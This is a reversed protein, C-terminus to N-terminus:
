FNIKTRVGYVRPEAISASYYRYGNAALTPVSSGATFVAEKTINRIWLGMSWKGNPSTYPIEANFTVYGPARGNPLYTFDLWRSSAFIATLSPTINGGGALHFVHRYDATGAWKPSRPLQLGTCNLDFFGGALPATSCRSGSTPGYAGTGLQQLRFSDLVGDTYEVGFHLTDESTANWLVDLSVGKITSKGVNKTTNSSFGCPDPTQSSFQQNEYKWVFGEVNVQLTNNLFRNRSGLEYAKLNEPQFGQPGCRATTSFGGAKFGTAATAYLMSQPGADFEVGAKWNFKNVKIPPVSFFAGTPQFPILPGAGSGLQYSGGNEEHTYRAGAIVRLKKTVSYTAQGFVAQAPIKQRYQLAATFGLALNAFPDGEQFPKDQYWYYGLVWKLPGNSNALRAEFTLQEDRLIEHYRFNSPYSTYESRQNRYAPTLTLTAFGMNWNIEASVGWVRNFLYADDPTTFPATQPGFIFPYTLPQQTNTRWPNKNVIPLVVNGGGKDNTRTADATVLISFNSSPEWLARLRVSQHKDDDTGDSLYGNRDVFQFAARVAFTDSLPVNIAGNLVKRDYNGLEAEVYGNPGSLDPRNTIVNIAGGSANRGYLTGQPGKLAEIRAVDFFLGSAGTARPIYVGDINIAVAGQARSNTDTSGVGRIFVQPQNGTQGIQIGPSLTTLQNVSTLGQLQKDNFVEMPVSSKQVTNSRREATIVIDGLAASNADVEPQDSQPPPPPPAEQAFAQGAAIISVAASVLLLTKRM